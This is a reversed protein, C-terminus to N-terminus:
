NPAAIKLLNSARKLYSIATKKHEPNQSYKSFFKDTLIELDELTAIALNLQSTNIHNVVKTLTTKIKTLEEKQSTTLAYNTKRITEIM